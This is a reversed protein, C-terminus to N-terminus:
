AEANRPIKNGCAKAHVLQDYKEKSVSPGEKACLKDFVQKLIGAIQEDTRGEIEHRPLFFKLEGDVFMAMSPSSPTQGIHERMRDVADREQGAFVTVSRDPIVSHQLAATAGPRASGAACGCVSNILVFTTGQADQITDDVQAPTLLEEFGVWTLEDRMPQVAVPDYM